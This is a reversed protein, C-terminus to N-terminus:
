AGQTLSNAEIRVQLGGPSIHVAEVKYDDGLYGIPTQLMAAKLTASNTITQGDAFTSALADAMFDANLRFGGPGLDMRRVASGPILKYAVGNWTITPCDDGLRNQVAQMASAHTAFDNM